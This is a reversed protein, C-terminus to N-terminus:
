GALARKSRVWALVAASSGSRVAQEIAGLASRRGNRPHVLLQCDLDIGRQELAPAYPIFPPAVWVIWRKGAGSGASARALGALLLELEGIGYHEICIETVAGGPWGGGPLYRDLEDFGTPIAPPALDALAGRWVRMSRLLEELGVLAATQRRPMM